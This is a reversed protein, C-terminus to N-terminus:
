SLGTIVRNVTQRLGKFDTKHADLGILRSLSVSKQGGIGSNLKETGICYFDWQDMNLPDITEQEKHKHMCFIYIDAQRKREAAYTNEKNDWYKTPNVRFIIKSYDRQHWVQIYASTKVEIRVGNQTKFDYADWEMRVGRDLELAAAM